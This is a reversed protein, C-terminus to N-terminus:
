IERRQFVGMAAGLAAVTWAALLGLPLAGNPVADAGLGALGGVERAGEILTLNFIRFADSPNALLLGTLLGPTLTQDTDALLLGLLGFDYVVVLGLWLAIALGAARARDLSRASLLTGFAVFVAALLIASAVLGAFALWGDRDAGGLAAVVLAAIGFGLTIAFSLIAIQGLVKGILVQGRRVPYALLLGLTGREHAGVIADHSLLLAMLPILYVTLSALSVVTVSLASAKVGGGPAAGILALVLALGALMAILAAVWRNALGDKVEKAAILGIIRM